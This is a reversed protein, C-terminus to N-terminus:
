PRCGQRRGHRRRRHRGCSPAQLSTYASNCVIAATMFVVITHPCTLEMPGNNGSVVPTSLRRFAQLVHVCGSSRWAKPKQRYFCFPHLSMATRVLPQPADDEGRVSRLGAARGDSTTRRRVSRYCFLTLVM